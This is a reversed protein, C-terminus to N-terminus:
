TLCGCFITSGPYARATSQADTHASRPPSTSPPYEMQKQTEKWLRDYRRDNVNLHPRGEAERLLEKPYTREPPESVPEPAKPASAPEFKSASAKGGARAAAGRSKGSTLGLRNGTKAAPAM